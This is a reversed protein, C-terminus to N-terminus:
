PKVGGIKAARGMIMKRFRLWGGVKAMREGWKMGALFAPRNRSVYLAAAAGLLGGLWFGRMRMDAM